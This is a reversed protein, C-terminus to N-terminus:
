IDDDLAVVALHRGTKGQDRRYSYFREPHCCTCSHKSEIHEDLIGTENLQMINIASLDAHINERQEIALPANATSTALQNAAEIGIEFCCAGISPGLTAYINGLTAGQMRMVEIAKVVVRQATGRWGAHVAAVVKAIPDALLVPLCDATRVAVPMNTECTILIDAEANHVIGEGHCVLHETAHVQRAQHPPSNLGAQHILREINTSVAQHEDGIDHGFNLTDYPHHSVGGRRDTFFARAGISSFLESEILHLDAIPM